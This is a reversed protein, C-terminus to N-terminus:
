FAGLHYHFRVIHKFRKVVALADKLLDRELTSLAEYPVSNDVPGGLRWKELGAKLRLAMFFALAEASDDALQQELRGQAALARLRDFTNSDTIGAEMALVRTGHVIPFIGAKKVDLRSQSDRNLWQGFLGVSHDFQEIPRALGALWNKDDSILGALYQKCDILWNREGCVAEADLFISLHLPTNSDPLNVWHYIRERWQEISGRWLPNNVMVGGPCPPYGCAILAETFANAAQEVAEPPLSGSYILANDQDSRLIQEGRGESGLVILCSDRYVDEPALMQWLRAMLRTNLAQVLRALQPAKMGHGAMSDILRVIAQAISALAEPDPAQEIRQAILHSHNSFYSLLDIQELINVPQGHRTVVVRQVGHQTMVLLANFLYDNEDCCYLEFHAYHLLTAEAPAGDMVVERLDSTTFIGIRVGDRVLLAKHRNEKMQRAAERVPTDSDLCLSPRSQVEHVRANFLTQWERRGDRSARMGMKESIGAYFYAGFHANADILAMVEARPLAYLLTEEHATFQHRSHGSMLSQADFLEHERYAAITEDGSSERVLGKLIIYLHDVAAGPLIIIEEPGFYTMDACQALQRRESDNLLDFPPHDLSVPQM